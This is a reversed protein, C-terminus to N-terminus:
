VAFVKIGGAAGGGLMALGKSDGIVGKKAARRWRSGSDEKAAREM